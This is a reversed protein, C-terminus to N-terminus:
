RSRANPVANKSAANTPVVKKRVVKKRVVKKSDAKKSSTKSSATNVTDKKTSGKSSDRPRRSARNARGENTTSDTLDIGFVSLRVTAGLPRVVEFDAAFSQLYKILEAFSLKSKTVPHQWSVKDGRYVLLLCGSTCSVHRLYQGSLQDTLASELAAVTWNNDALKVEIVVHSNAGDIISLQIDNEKLDAMETERAVSYCGNAAGRLRNALARQMSTEKTILRLSDRESFDDHSLDHEIDELRDLMLCYLAEQNQPPVEFSKDIDALKSPDVPNPESDRAARERALIRLRDSSHTFDSQNAIESIARKATEGPCELLCNLLYGRAREALDRPNPTYMGEHVADDHQRVHRYALITLDRLIRARTDPDAIALVTSGGRDGFLDALADIVDHDLVHGSNFREVLLTSGREPNFRLIGGLWLLSLPGNQDSQYLAECKESLRSKINSDGSSTFIGILQEINHRWYKISNEDMDVQLAEFVMLLRPILLKKLADDSHSLYQLAPLFQSEGGKKLQAELEAGLITEVSAPRDEALDFIFPAFRNIDVTCYTTALAVEDDSLHKPWRPDRTEVEIGTLGYVWIYPIGNQESRASWQVPRVHRWCNRFAKEAERLFDASFAAEIDEPSWLGYYGQSRTRKALWTYLNAIGDSNPGHQFSAQPAAVVEERWRDWNAVRKAEAAAARQTYARNSREIKLLEASKKPRALQSTLLENLPETSSVLKRLAKLKSTARGTQAWYCIMLMLTVAKMRLDKSDGFASEAWAEDTNKLDGIMRHYELRHFHDRLQGNPYFKLTMRIEEELIITRLSSDTRLIEVLPALEEQHTPEGSLFRIAVVADQAIEPWRSRPLTRMQINCLTLLAGAFHSYASRMRYPQSTPDWGELILSSLGSRLSALQTDHPDKTRLSFQLLWAVGGWDSKRNEIRRLLAIEQDASIFEPFFELAAHKIIRQSCRAPDGLVSKLFGAISDSAGCAKLTTLAQIRLTDTASENLMEGRAIDICSILPVYEMIKLLLERVEQNEFDRKWLSKVAAELCPDSLRQINEDELRFGRWGGHGYEDAFRQLLRVKATPPLSQPDGEAILVEPERKAVEQCVAENWVSLWAAIPRMSPVIIKEGYKDAFLLRFVSKIPMGNRLMERLRCAALYEQVSRNHFRIRGYTAPHFIARRLLAQRESVTWEKLVQDPNLAGIGNAVVAKMEPSRITRRKTLLLALALRELGSRSKTGSLVGRDRRTESDRLKTEINTEHQELRSGLEGRENWINGLETLDLPRRAFSTLNQRRIEVIFNSPNKIGIGLAFAEIQRDSLPNLMVTRVKETLPAKVEASTIADADQYDGGVIGSRFIQDGSPRIPIQRVSQLPLHANVLDLDVTPQWDHPRCSIVIRAQALNRKITSAVRSLAQDFRMETLKLEDVSDLFFWCPVDSSRLWEILLSKASESELAEELSSARALYELPIYFAYKGEDVLNTALHQMEATKGTGGEALLLVRQFELIDNWSLASSYLSSEGLAALTDADELESESLEHFKRQLEIFPRM